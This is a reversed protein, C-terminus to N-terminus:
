KDKPSVLAVKFNSDDYIIEFRDISHALSAFPNKELTTKKIDKIPIKKLRDKNFPENHIKYGTSIFLTAFPITFM